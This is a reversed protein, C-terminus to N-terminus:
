NRSLLYGTFIPLRNLNFSTVMEIFSFQIGHKYINYIELKHSDLSEPKESRFLVDEANDETLFPQTHELPPPLDSPVPAPRTGPLSCNHLPLGKESWPAWPENPGKKPDGM